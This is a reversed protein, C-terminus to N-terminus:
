PLRLLDALGFPWDLTQAGACLVPIRLALDDREHVPLDAIDVAQWTMPRADRLQTLLTEANECLHCGLTGYLLWPSAIADAMMMEQDNVFFM